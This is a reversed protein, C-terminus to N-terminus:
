LLPDFHIPGCSCKWTIVGGFGSNVTVPIVETKGTNDKQGPGSTSDLGTVGVTLIAM